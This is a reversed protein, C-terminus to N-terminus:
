RAPEGLAGHLVSDRNFPRKAAPGTSEAAPPPRHSTAHDAAPPEDPHPRLGLAIAIRLMTGRICQREGSMVKHVTKPNYGNRIAWGEVTEGDLALRARARQIAERSIPPFLSEAQM